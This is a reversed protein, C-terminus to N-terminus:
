AALRSVYQVSVGLIEAAGATDVFPGPNTRTWGAAAMLEEFTADQDPQLRLFAREELRERGERQPRSDTVSRAEQWHKRARPLTCMKVLAERASNAHRIPMGPSGANLSLLLGLSEEARVEGIALRSPRM